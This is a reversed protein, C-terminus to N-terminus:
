HLQRLFDQAPLVDLGNYHYARPGTYVGIMREVVVGPRDKMDRMAWEWRRDWRTAPKVEILVVHAPSQPRSQRTEIVFDIESGSPTAYYRIAHHRRSVENFVRLEHYLPADLLDLYMAQRFFERVWTRKGTGRPGFLFFSQAPAILSRQLHTRSM